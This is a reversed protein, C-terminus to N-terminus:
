TERTSWARGRLQNDVRRSEHRETGIVHLGGVERVNTEEKSLVEEYEDRVLQIASRLQQINQDQTPTKEAATSIYDDLEISSLSRDGWEKVLDSALTAL